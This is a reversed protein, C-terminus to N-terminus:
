VVGVTSKAAQIVRGETGEEFAGTRLLARQNMIVEYGGESLQRDVPVYGIIANAYGLPIVSAYNAALEKKLRLGYEVSMEGAMAVIALDWGFTLSQVEIPVVRVPQDSKSVLDQFHRAWTNELPSQSDALAIVENDDFPATTLDTMVSRIAIRGTVESMERNAARLVSQALLEGNAQVEDVTAKRFGGTNQDLFHPKQDGGCGKAFVALCRPLQSELHSMAFGPYDGGIELIPGTSTPHCAYSFLVLRPQGEPDRAVVVPVEHDHPADLPPEWLVGGDGDPKRRSAAFGCWDAGSWLTVSERDACAETAAVSLRHFVDSIYTNNVSSDGHRRADFTRIAPGCHTHTGLLLISEPKIGTADSLVQRAKDTRDYFGLWEISVILTATAGDSLAIVTATLPHYVGNSPETRAAYGALFSGAPPTVDVRRIGMEYSM